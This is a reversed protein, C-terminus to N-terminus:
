CVGLGGIAMGSPEGTGPLHGQLRTRLFCRWKIGPMVPCLWLCGCAGLLLCELVPILGMVTQCLLEEMLVLMITMIVRVDSLNTRSFVPKEM